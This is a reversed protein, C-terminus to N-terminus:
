VSRLYMVRGIIVLTELASLSMCVLLVPNRKFFGELSFAIQIFLFLIFMWISLGATDRVQFLKILQPLLAAANLFGFVWIIKQWHIMRAFM